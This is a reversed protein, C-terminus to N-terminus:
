GMHELQQINNKVNEQEKMTTAHTVRSFGFTHTTIFYQFMRGLVCTHIRSPTYTHTHTHVAGDCPPGSVCQEFAPHAHPCPM